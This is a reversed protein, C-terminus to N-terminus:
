PRPGRALSEHARAFHGEAIAAVISIEGALCLGAALEALAPAHGEGRLGLIDLAASQAPLATGGGVTGVLVNPLTVSCFLGGACPEIRTMGVASEAVCAADQGTAIYLAALANAFHAQIGVQGSLAAGLGAVRAYDAMATSSSRLVRRIVTEPLTVAATVKRGRGTVAGLFSAKKDGSHNGEVYWRQVPVPSAGAIHRCLADTAITVMNQGAADGTLYRCRLFVVNADIVPELSVLRGHRTTAEAASQLAADNAAVWDVFHGADFITGFVFAPSRLVGESLVAAEAGGAASIAQAGRSYSAVLAAETTALPVAFDGRAHLGNLRLPGAIGVPMEVTGILNEINRAYLGPDSLGVPDRLPNDAAGDPSLRAWYAAVTSADPKRVTRFVPPRPGEPAAAPAAAAARAKDLAAKIAPPIM